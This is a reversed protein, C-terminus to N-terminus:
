FFNFSVPFEDIEFFIFVKLINSFVKAFVERGNGVVGMGVVDCFALSPQLGFVAIKRQANEALVVQLVNLARVHNAALETNGVLIEIGADAFELTRCFTQLCQVFRVIGGDELIEGMRGGFQLGRNRGNLFLVGVALQRGAHLQVREAAECGVKQGFVLVAHLIGVLRVNVVIGLGNLM